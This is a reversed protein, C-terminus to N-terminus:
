LLDTDGIRSPPPPWSVLPGFQYVGFASEDHNLFMIWVDSFCGGCNPSCGRDLSLAKALAWFDVGAEDVLSDIPLSPWLFDSISHNSARRCFGCVPWLVVCMLCTLLPVPYAIYSIDYERYRSTVARTQSEIAAPPVGHTSYMSYRVLWLRKGLMNGLESM